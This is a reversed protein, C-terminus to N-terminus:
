SLLSSLFSLVETSQETLDDKTLNWIYQTPVVHSFSKINIIAGGQAVAWTDGATNALALLVDALRPHGGCFPYDKMYRHCEMCDGWDDSVSLDHKEFKAPNAKVCAESIAKIMEERTM